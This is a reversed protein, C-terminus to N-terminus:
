NRCIEFYIFKNDRNIENFGVKELVHQSRENKLISEAKVKKLNLRNFAYDVIMTESLYGYGKNKVSDNRLHISVNCENNYEINRLSIEGIPVNDLFILFNERHKESRIKNWYNIVKEESYVYEQMENLDIYISEDMVFEQYYTNLDKLNTRKLCLVSGNNLVKRYYLAPYDKRDLIRVITILVFTVAGAGFVIGWAFNRGLDPNDYVTGIAIQLGSSVLSVVVNSFAMVRGRHSAPIRRTLFPSSALTNFIEGYTFIVIAVYCFVVNKILLFFILYGLIELGTGFYLKDADYIRKFFRTILSTFVVVVICNVSSITGFIVSGQDGYNATLDLPMLYNYMAYIFSGLISIIIFLLVVRNKFIYVISNSKIDKEYEAAQSTDKEKSLNKVLFFILITSLLISCGNILFALNLYNNFLLGGLTPALVLGLNAGLYSLSYARERDKSTTFDAILADYAPWEISQFLSAAAFIIINVINIEAFFCYVFAIVSIIDCFIIIYKKNFADALKGGLLSMPISVLSYVLMAIAITQANLGLKQNLILTFIPFIMSGLNTMMRGITLIYLEKRLGRYQEFPRFKAM